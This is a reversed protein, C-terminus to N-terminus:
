RNSLERGGRRGVAPLGTQGKDQELLEQSNAEVPLLEAWSAQLPLVQDGARTVTPQWPVARRGVVAVM